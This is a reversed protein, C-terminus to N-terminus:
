DNWGLHTESQYINKFHSYKCVDGWFKCRVLQRNQM